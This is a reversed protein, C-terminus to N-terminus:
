AGGVGFGEGVGCGFLGLEGDVEAVFVGAHVVWFGADTFDVGQRLVGTAIAQLTM